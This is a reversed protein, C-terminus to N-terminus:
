EHTSGTITPPSIARPFSRFVVCSALLHTVLALCQVRGSWIGRCGGAMSGRAKNGDADVDKTEYSTANFHHCHCGGGGAGLGCVM